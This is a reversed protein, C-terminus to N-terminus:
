APPDMDGPLLARYQYDWDVNGQPDIDAGNLVWVERRKVEADRLAAQLREIQEAQEVVTRAALVSKVPSYGTSGGAIKRAEAVSMRDSM